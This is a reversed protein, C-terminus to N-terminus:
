RHFSKWCRKWFNWREVEYVVGSFGGSVGEGALSIEFANEGKRVLEIHPLGFEL